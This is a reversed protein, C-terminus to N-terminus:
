SPLPADQQLPLTLNAPLPLSPLLPCRHDTVRRHHVMPPWVGSTHGPEMPQPLVVIASLSRLSPHARLSDTPSSPLRGLHTQAGDNAPFTVTASLSRLPHHARLNDTPSSPLRGLHTRAEDNAPFTVKASLSRLPHHARLNDTPSSPLRGFHTQAEETTPFTSM